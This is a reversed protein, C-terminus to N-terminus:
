EWASSQEGLKIKIGIMELRKGSSLQRYDLLPIRM